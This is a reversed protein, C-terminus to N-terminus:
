VWFVRFKLGFVRFGLGLFGLRMFGYVRSGLCLFRIGGGQRSLWWVPLRALAYMARLPLAGTLPATIYRPVYSEIYIYIYIYM